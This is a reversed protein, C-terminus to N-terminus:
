TLIPQIDKQNRRMRWWQWLFPPTCFVIFGILLMMPYTQENLFDYEEPPTFGLVFAFICFLAGGGMLVWLGIKGGPIKYPREVNPQTYRLKIVSLFVM